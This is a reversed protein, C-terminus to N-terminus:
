EVIISGLNVVLVKFKLACAINKYSFKLLISKCM